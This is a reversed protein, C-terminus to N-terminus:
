VMLSPRLPVEVLLRVTVMVPVLSAGAIAAMLWAFKLSCVVVLASLLLMVALKPSTSRVSTPWVAAIVSTAVPPTVVPSANSAAASLASILMPVTVLTDPAAVPLM